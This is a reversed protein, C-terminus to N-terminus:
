TLPGLPLDEPVLPSVAHLGMRGLDAGCVSKNEVM